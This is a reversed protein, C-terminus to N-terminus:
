CSVYRDLRAASTGFRADQASLALFANDALVKPPGAAQSDAPWPASSGVAPRASFRIM